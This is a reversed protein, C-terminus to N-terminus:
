SHTLCSCHQAKKSHHLRRHCQLVYAHHQRRWLKGAVNPRYCPSCFVELHMTLQLQQLVAEVKMNCLTEQFLQGQLVLRAGRVFRARPESLAFTCSFVVANEANCTDSRHMTFGRHSGCSLSACTTPRAQEQTLISWASTWSSLLDEASSTQATLM